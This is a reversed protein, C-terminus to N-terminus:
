TLGLYFSFVNRIDGVFQSNFERKGDPGLGVGFMGNPPRTGPGPEPSRVLM